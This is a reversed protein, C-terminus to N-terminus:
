QSKRLYAPIDLHHPHLIEAPVIKEQHLLYASVLGNQDALPVYKGQHRYVTVLPRLGSAIMQHLQVVEDFFAAEGPSLACDPQPLDFGSFDIDELPLITKVM